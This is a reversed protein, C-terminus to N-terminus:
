PVIKGGPMSWMITAGIEVESNAIQETTLQRENLTILFQIFSADTNCYFRHWQETLNQTTNGERTTLFVSNFFNDVRNEENIAETNTHDAFIKCAVEGIDTVNALFDIWGFQFNTGAEMYSYRKTLAKFNMVRAIEGRGRYVSGGATVTVDQILGSLNQASGGPTAATFGTTNIDVTFQNGEVTVLGFLGNVQTMGPIGSLQISEGVNYDNGPATVQAQTAITVATVVFRPKEQISFTDSTLNRIQFVRDNLVNFNGVVSEIIGTIKIFEGTNLNHDPSTIVAPTGVTIDQVCLSADNNTQKNLVHVWGQQNGGIIDPFRAQFQGSNWAQIITQWERGALDDWTIDDFRQWQGLTTFSDTFIAWTNNFYNFILLRDPFEKQGISDPFTWYVLRNFHDRIGHVRRPGNNDNEFGFVEDPIDEDIREVTNGNCSTIGKDGISLVGKDFRVDSFTSEAGLEVNIREWIFPLIENGTYRLLWTSHEFRVTLTDRIFEASVIHENTPCDVFGGRGAINDLFANTQDTPDGNQSWRARQPFQTIAGVATGEQTNLSVLRGRYPILMLCQRLLVPTGSNDLQPEFTTFTLGDTFRIPNATNNNCVWFLGRAGSQWFNTTWFFQDTSISGWTTGPIWEEYRDNTNNFRYAYITDFAIADENNIAGLEYVRLGMVPLKPYYSFTGTVASAGVAGSTTITVAGNAYNIVAATIVVGAGSVVFVGTGTSDTLTNNGPVAITLVLPNAATGPVMEANPETAAVGLGTFINFVTDGAGGATFNGLATATLDRRLRGLLEFGKRRLLRDRWVYMNELESFADDPIVYDKKSQVLGSNRNAIAFPKYTM